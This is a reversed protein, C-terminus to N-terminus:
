SPEIWNYKYSASKQPTKTM